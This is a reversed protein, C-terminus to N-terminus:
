PFRAPQTCLRSLLPGLQTCPLSGPPRGLSPRGTGPAEAARGPSRPAGRGPAPMTLHQPRGLLQGPGLPLAPLPDPLPGVAVGTTQCLHKAAPAVAAALGSRGARGQTDAAAPSDVRAQLRRQSAAVSVERGRRSGGGGPLAPPWVLGPLGRPRASGVISGHGGPGALGRGPPGCPTWAPALTSSGYACTSGRDQWASRGPSPRGPRM